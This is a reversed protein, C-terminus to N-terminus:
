GNRRNRDGSSAPSRWNGALRDASDPCHSPVVVMGDRALAQLMKRTVQAAGRDKAIRTYPFGLGHELDGIRLVADASLMLRSGGSTAVQLGIQGAAHGPLAIARISGDGFLDVPGRSTDILRVRGALDGPLGGRALRHWWRARESLSEWAAVDLIVGAGPLGALGGSHDPDLHSVVVWSVRAPDLGARVLSEAVPPSEPRLAWRYLLGVSGDAEDMSVGFGSDFLILGASHHDIAAAMVPLLARRLSKRGLAIQPPRVVGTNFLTV